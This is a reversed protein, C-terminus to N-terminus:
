RVPLKNIIDMLILQEKDTMDNLIVTALDNGYEAKYTLALESVNLKNKLRGFVTYIKEEDTGLGRFAKRLEKAQETPNIPIYDPYKKILLPNFYESTRLLTEAKSEAKDQAKAKGTKIIGLSSLIKYIIFLVILLGSIYVISMIKNTDPIKM